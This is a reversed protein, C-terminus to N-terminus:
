SSNSSSRNHSLQNIQSIIIDVNHIIGAIDINIIIFDSGGDASCGINTGDLLVSASQSTATSVLKMTSSNYSTINLTFDSFSPAPQNMQLIVADGNRSWVATAEPVGNVKCTFVLTDGPCVVPYPTHNFSSISAASSICNYYFVVRNNPKNCCHM